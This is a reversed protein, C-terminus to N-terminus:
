SYAMVILPTSKEKELFTWQRVPVIVVFLAIGTPPFFMVIPLIDIIRAARREEYGLKKMVVQVM